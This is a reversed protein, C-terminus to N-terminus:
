SAAAPPFLVLPVHSHRMVAETVSGLLLRRLGSRGHTAMALYSAKEKQAFEVIAHPVNMADLLATRAPRQCRLTAALEKLRKEWDNRLQGRDPYTAVMGGATPEFPLEELVALLVVQLGLRDALECTPAFARQSEPSLDTTLVICGM